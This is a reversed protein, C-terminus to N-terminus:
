VEMVTGMFMPTMTKTDVILYIFPRSLCVENEPMAAGSDVEVMTAAGAKTGQPTVAIHTKHIVRGIFLPTGNEMTGMNSFDATGAEFASGMGLQALDNNLERTFEKEFQPISTEVRTQQAELLLTRLAKGTLNNLCEAVTKGERPLLAVFAYREGEYPRLFGTLDENEVYQYETSYMYEAKQEEGAETTFTGKGVQYGKYPYQWDCEFSLANVLYLIASDPIEEIIKPIMDKTNDSVFKNIEKITSEDFPTTRLAADYYDANAQLFAQNPTFGVDDRLWIGNATHVIGEEQRKSLNKLYKNLTDLPLGLVQEMETLTEGAAGNATMGLALAISLPSILTSKDSACQRLVSLGFDTLAVHGEEPMDESEAVYTGKVGTMLDTGTSGCGSCVTLLMVVALLIPLSKKMFM